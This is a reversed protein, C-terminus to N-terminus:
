LYSADCKIMLGDHADTLTINQTIKTTFTGDSNKDKINATGQQLDWTISPPNDPCPTVASCTITVVETETQNGSVTISPIWPAVRVTIHLPYCYDSATFPNNEIRLYYDGNNIQNLDYFMTTCNKKTLDGTFKMPYDRVPNRSRSTMAMKKGFVLSLTAPDIDNEYLKDLKETPQTDANETKSVQVSSYVTKEQEAKSVEKPNLKSFDIEGYHLTEEAKGTDVVQQQLDLTLVDWKWTIKPCWWYINEEECINFTYTQGKLSKSQGRHATDSGPLHPVPPKARPAAETDRSVQSLSRVSQGCASPNKLFWRFSVCSCKAAVSVVFLSPDM